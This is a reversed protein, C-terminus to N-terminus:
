IIVTRPTQSCIVEDNVTLKTLQPLPRQIPFHVSYSIDQLNRQMLSNVVSNEDESLEIRGADKQLYVGKENLLQKNELMNSKEDDKLELISSLPCNKTKPAM